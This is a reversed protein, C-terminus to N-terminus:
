PPVTAFGREGAKVPLGAFFRKVVRALSPVKRAGRVRSIDFTQLM